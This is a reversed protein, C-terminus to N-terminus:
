LYKRMSRHPIGADMFVESCTEFGHKEYFTIASTQAHLYLQKLQMQKGQEILAQLIHSGIGQRRCSELVAMRGIQGDAKIRGTAIPRHNKDRVLIHVCQADYEDWELAEPVQQEEIFVQRRISSLAEKDDQWRTIKLGFIECSRKM